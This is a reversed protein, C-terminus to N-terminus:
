ISSAENVSKKWIVEFESKPIVLLNAFHSAVVPWIQPLNSQGM